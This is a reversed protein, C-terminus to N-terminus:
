YAWANLFMWLATMGLMPNLAPGHRRSVQITLLSHGALYILPWWAHMQWLLGTAVLGCAFYLTVAFRHGFLVALTHKGVQADTQRDRINNVLLVCSGMLGIAVAVCWVPATPAIGTALRYTLTVPVLGFFLLVALEGLGHRSLPWPGASYALAGLAVAIGIPLLWWGSWYILACGAVCALALTALTAALMANPKIDGETVGRRPGVRGPADIGDKYDFYENAFNSAIQALLAFLTCLALPACKLPAHTYVAAMAAAVVGALSVPLTRLRM